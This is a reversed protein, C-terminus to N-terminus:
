EGLQQRSRLGDCRKPCAGCPAERRLRRQRRILLRDHSPAGLTRRPFCESGVHGIALFGKGVSLEAVSEAAATANM